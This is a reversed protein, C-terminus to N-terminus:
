PAAPRAARCVLWCREVGDYGGGRVQEISLDAWVAAARFADELRRESPFNYYRGLDDRGPGDGAKFSAELVGGPALARWVRGLIAALGEMPVHLLSANAWVGEFCKDDDLDAFRMVRVPRGLRRTAEAALGPSGDLPTVRLGAALMVAADQGAGCGLDLVRAGPALSAIFAALRVSEGSRSRDAYAAAERDYFALTADDEFANRGSPHM